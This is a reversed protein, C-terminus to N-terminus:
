VAVCSPCCDGDLTKAVTNEPCDPWDCQVWACMVESDAQPCWCFRCTDEFSEGVLFTPEPEPDGSSAFSGCHVPTSWRLHHDGNPFFMLVPAGSSGPCTPATYTIIPYEEGKVEGVTIKKPQGHPHSIVLVTFRLKESRPLLGLDSLNVPHSDSYFWRGWALKIRNGLDEDHTVCIIEGFDNPLNKTLDTDSRLMGLGTVSRMKGDQRSNVDDYFLDVTTAKAEEANFVVHQATRVQFRWFKRQVKGRCQSCPCPITDSDTVPDVVFNIYGTGVRTADKGRLSSVPDDLSRWLSTWRVRLRVTLDVMSGVLHRQEEPQVRPLTTDLFDQASLFDVHGPNKACTQWRGASEEAEPAAGFIESEHHGGPPQQWYRRPSYNTAVEDVSATLVGFAFVATVFNPIGVSAKEGAAPLVVAVVKVKGARWQHFVIARGVERSHIRQSNQQKDDREEAGQKTKPQDLM